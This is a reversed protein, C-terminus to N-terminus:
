ADPSTRCNLHLFTHVESAFREAFEHHLWHSGGAFHSISHNKVRALRAAGPFPVFSKDGYVLLAPCAIADLIEDLDAGRQDEPPRHRVLPDFKWRWGRGHEYAVGHRALHAITAEPLSPQESHMRARADELSPYFRGDRKAVAQRREIWNRLRVPYPTPERGEDRHIPLEICEIGIFATVRDPFTAAVRLGLAGGLSHGVIAYRHLGLADAIGALDAVYASLAYGDATAWDSDGHGRLDPAIVRFDPSLAAALADWNRCHDRMGHILMVAPAREDGWCAVNLRRGEVFVSLSSPQPIM